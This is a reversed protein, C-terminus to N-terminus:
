DLKAGATVWAELARTDLGARAFGPVLIDRVVATLEAHAVPAPPIGHAWLRDDDPLTIKRWERLNCATLPVLWQSLERRLGDPALSLYAWGIRAHDIEDELLERLAARVVPSRAGERAASLYAGAFTENLACQGIVWLADRVAPSPAARHAPRRPPLVAHPGCVRGAYRGAMDECLAAHRHEDDVARAALAVLADDAGLRSLSDHIVSFSAAVRAETAAQGMWIGALTTRVAPALEAIEETSDPLARHTVAGRWRGDPRVRARTAESAMPAGANM